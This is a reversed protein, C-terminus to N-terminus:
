RTVSSPSQQRARSKLAKAFAAKAETTTLYPEVDSPDTPQRGNNAATYAQTASELARMDAATLDDERPFSSSGHGNPGIVIRQDFEADIPEKQTIIWDGGMKVFPAESEPYVGYRSLIAPDITPELHPILQSIDTPFASNNAKTYKDLAPRLTAAVKQQATNRLSAFAKRFDEDTELTPQKVAALWDEESLLQMEPTQAQPTSELRGKLQTLRGLWSMAASEVPGSAKRAEAERKLRGVEGRLRLLEPNTGGASMIQNQLSALQRLAAEHEGKLKNIENQAPAVSKLQDLESKLESAHHAQYIGTSVAVILTVAIATTKITSMTLIGTTAAAAAGATATVASEAVVTAIAVSLGAPVAQVANASLATILAASSVRIGRRTFFQTLRDIARTLRKQAANESAGLTEGIERLSKNAFYRLLIANRDDDDLSQVADDLLPEIESWETSSSNMESLQQAIRERTQRRHESRVVDIAARRAVQHLWAPIITSAPLKSANRALDLFVTQAVDQALEPSQVQRLAASYVLPLHRRVLEAFADDAREHAYRALLQFDSQDNM